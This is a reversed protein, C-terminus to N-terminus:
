SVAQILSASRWSAFVAADMLVALPAHVRHCGRGRGASAAGRECIFAPLDGYTRPSLGGQRQRLEKRAIEGTGVM